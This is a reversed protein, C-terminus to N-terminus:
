DLAGVAGARAGDFPSFKANVCGETVVVFGAAGAIELSRKAASSNEPKAEADGRDGPAGGTGGGVFTKDGISGEVLLLMLEAKLREEFEVDGGASCGAEATGL